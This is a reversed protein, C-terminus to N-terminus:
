RYRARQYNAKVYGEKAAKDFCENKKKRTYAMYVGYDESAIRLKFDANKAEIFAAYKECKGHCGHYREECRYCPPQKKVEM